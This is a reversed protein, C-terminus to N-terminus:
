LRGQMLHIKERVIKMFERFGIGNHPFINDSKKNNNIKQMIDLHYKEDLALIILDSKEIKGVIKDFSVVDNGVVDEKNSVILADVKINLGQTYKYVEKAIEGAGYLYIHCANKVRNTFENMLWNFNVSIKGQRYLSFRNCLLARDFLSLLEGSYRRKICERYANEEDIDPLYNWPMFLARFINETSIEEGTFYFAGINGLSGINDKDEGGINLEAM